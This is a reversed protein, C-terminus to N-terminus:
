GEKEIKWEWRSIEQKTNQTNWKRKEGSKGFGRIGYSTTTVEWSEKVTKKEKVQSNRNKNIRKRTKVKWDKYTTMSHRNYFM